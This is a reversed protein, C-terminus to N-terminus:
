RSKRDRFSLLTKLHQLEEPEKEKLNHLYELFFSITISSLLSMFMIIGSVLVPNVSKSESGTLYEIPASPASHIEFIYYDKAKIASIQKDIFTIQDAYQQKKYIDTSVEYNHSLLSKESELSELANGKLYNSLESIFCILIKQSLQPDATEMSIKFANWVSNPPMSGFRPMNSFTEYRINRFENNQMQLKSFISKLMVNSKMRLAMSELGTSDINTQDRPNIKLICESRYMVRPLTPLSQDKITLYHIATLLGTVFVIMLILKRYEMIVILFSFINIRVEAKELADEYRDQKM